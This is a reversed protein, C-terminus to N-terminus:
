ICLPESTNVWPGPGPGLDRSALGPDNLGRGQKIKSRFPNLDFAASWAVHSRSRRKRNALLWKIASVHAASGRRWAYVDIYPLETPNLRIQQSHSSGTQRFPDDPHAHSPPNAGAHVNLSRRVASAVNSNLHPRKPTAAEIKAAVHRSHRHTQGRATKEM